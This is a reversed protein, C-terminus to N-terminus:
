LIKTGLDSPSGKISGSPFTALWWKKEKEMINEAWDIDIEYYTYAVKLKDETFIKVKTKYLIQQKFFLLSKVM